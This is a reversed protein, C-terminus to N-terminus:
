CFGVLQFHLSLFETRKDLLIHNYSEERTVEIYNGKEPPKLKSFWGDMRSFMWLFFIFDFFVGSLGQSRMQFGDM